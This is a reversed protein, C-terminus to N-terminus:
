KSKVEECKSLFDVIQLRCWFKALDLPTNGLADRDVTNMGAQVLIEVCNLHGWRAATHLATTGDPKCPWCHMTHPDSLLYSLCDQSGWQCALHLADITGLVHEMIFLKLVAVHNFTIAHSIASFNQNDLFTVEAGVELLYKCSEVRGFKAARSLATEGANSQTNVNVRGTEILWVLVNVHNFGAAMILPTSLHESINQHLLERDKTALTDLFATDGRWCAKRILNVKETCVSIGREVEANSPFFPEIKERILPKQPTVMSLVLLLREWSVDASLSATNEGMGHNDSVCYKLVLPSRLEQLLLEIEEKANRTEKPKWWWAVLRGSEMNLCLAAIQFLYKLSNMLLVTDASPLSSTRLNYPPDALIVDVSGNAFPCHKADIQIFDTGESGESGICGTEIDSGICIAAKFYKKAVALVGGGGCFPDYVIDSKMVNAATCMFYCRQFDLRTTAIATFASLPNLRISDFQKAAKTSSKEGGSYSLRLLFYHILNANGRDVGRHDSVLHCNIPLIDVLAQNPQFDEVMRKTKKVRRGIEFMDSVHIRYDETVKTQRVMEDIGISTFLLMDYYFRITTCNGISIKLLDSDIHTLDLQLLCPQNKQNNAKYM